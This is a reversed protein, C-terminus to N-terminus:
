AWQDLKTAMAGHLLGELFWFQLGVQSAFPVFTFVLALTGVNVAVVAATWLRDDPDTLSRVLKLEWLLTVLLAVAYFFLLFLGGDLIWANPQVEAWLTKARPVGAYGAMVGWRALGAGMPYEPLLDSFAYQFQNGRSEGYVTRPDAQFVSMFREQVSEGGLITAASLSAVLLGGALGLFGTVRLRQKQLTLMVVYTAMMVLVVLFSARVHSLYIASMGALALALAVARKWAEIKELCLILGLLAAVTGAGCVAGPTDFLGPPRVIIRGNPGVYSTNFRLNDAYTPSFEAPMWRDPDYVQLVGVVSNIGNCILLIALVRILARRNAVFSPVWFIPCLVAFYLALQGAGAFMNYTDPHAIMATLICLVGVLWPHAPHRVPFRPRTGFFWYAFALVSVGFAAGRIVGRFSQMGPLFLLAPLATQSIAFWELLGSPRWRGSDVSEQDPEAPEYADPPEDHGPFAAPVISPAGRYIPDPRNTSM